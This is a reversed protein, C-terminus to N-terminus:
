CPAGAYCVCLEDVLLSEIHQFLKTNEKLEEVSISEGDEDELLFDRFQLEERHDFYFETALYYEKDNFTIQKEYTNM